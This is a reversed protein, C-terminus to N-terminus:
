CHLTECQFNDLCRTATSDTYSLDYETSIFLKLHVSM